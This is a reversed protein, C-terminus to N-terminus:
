FTWLVLLKGPASMPLSWSKTIIVKRTRRFFVLLDFWDFSLNLRSFNLFGSTALVNGAVIPPFNAGSMLTLSSLMSLSLM